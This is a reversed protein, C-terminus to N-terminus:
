YDGKGPLIGGQNDFHIIVMVDKINALDAFPTIDAYISTNYQDSGISEISGILLGEPFIGEGSTVVYDGIAVSCNRSLNSFRCKNKKALQLNGSVIGSDNTRNDLAGLVLEPNLITTVKSTTTGLETIYGVLGADTIVPDYLSIGSSSGRNITFGGYPDSHDKSILISHCFEFDLNKEKIGLYKKYSENESIIKDYDATKERMDNIKSTLEANEVLLESNDKYSSVIDSIGNSISTALTKFPASIMGAIDTHPSM